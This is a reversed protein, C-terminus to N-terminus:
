FSRTKDWLAINVSTEGENHIGSPRWADDDADHGHAQSEEQDPLKVRRNRVTAFKGFEFGFSLIGLPVAALVGDVFLGLGGVAIGGVSASHSM